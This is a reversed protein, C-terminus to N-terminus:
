SKKMVLYVTRKKPNNPNDIIVDCLFGEKKFIKATRLLEEMSKPYFQIVVKGKSKLVYKIGSVSESIDTEKLWQFASASVVGDFCNQSFVKPLNRIDCEKVDLGKELAKVIMNQLVDVGVVDYGESKYVSSTYGVGCGLDLLKSGPELDLLELIRYALKEQAKKMSRSNAYKKIEEETYYLSPHGYIEEPRESSVVWNYNKSKNKKSKM